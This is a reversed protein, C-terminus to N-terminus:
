ISLLARCALELNSRGKKHHIKHRARRPTVCPPASHAARHSNTPRLHLLSPMPPRAHGTANLCFRAQGISAGTRRKRAPRSFLLTGGAEGRDLAVAARRAAWGSSNSGSCPFGPCGGAPPAPDRGWARQEYAAAPIRALAQEHFSDSSVAGM